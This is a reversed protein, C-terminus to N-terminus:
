FRDAETGIWEFSGAEEKELDLLPTQAQAFATEEQVEYGVVQNLRRTLKTFASRLANQRSRKLSNFSFPVDPDDLEISVFNGPLRPAYWLWEGTKTDILEMTVFARYKTERADDQSQTDSQLSLRVIALADVDLNHRLRSRKQEPLDHITKNSEIGVAAVDKGHLLMRGDRTTSWTSGATSHSVNEAGFLMPTFDLVGWGFGMGPTPRISQYVATQGLHGRDMVKWGLGYEMAECLSDYAQSSLLQNNRAYNDEPDDSKSAGFFKQATSKKDLKDQIDIEFGIIAVSEVESLESKLLIEGSALPPPGKTTTCSWSFFCLLMLILYNQKSWPYSHQM